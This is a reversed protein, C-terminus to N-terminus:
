SFIGHCYWSGDEDRFVWLERQRPDVWRFYDRRTKSSMGGVCGRWWKIGVRELFKCEQMLSGFIARPQVQVFLPRRLALVTWPGTGDEGAGDGDEGGRHSVTGVREYSMEVDWDHRVRYAELEVPLQNSVRELERDIESGSSDQWLGTERSCAAVREEIVLTWGVVPVGDRCGEWRGGEQREMRDAFAYSAQLVVTRHHGCERVLDHPNRFAIRIDVRDMDHLHLSWTLALVREEPWRGPYMALRDCDEILLEVLSEWQWLPYDLSRKVTPKVDVVWNVWPFSEVAMWHAEGEEGIDVVTWSWLRAVFSGFRRQISATTAGRLAYPGAVGLRLMMEKLSSFVTARVQTRGRGREYKIMDQAVGLWTDWSIQQYLSLGCADSYCAWSKMVEFAPDAVRSAVHHLLLLAAWPTPAFAGWCGGLYRTLVDRIEDDGDVGRQHGRVNWYDRTTALDLLWVDQSWRMVCPTIIGDGPHRSDLPIKLALFRDRAKTGM